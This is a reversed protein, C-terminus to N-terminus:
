RDWAETGEVDHALQAAEDPFMASVDPEPASRWRISVMTDYVEVAMIRLRGGRLEYEADPGPVSRVFRPLVAICHSPPQPSHSGRVPPEYCWGIGRSKWRSGCGTPGTVSKTPPSNM